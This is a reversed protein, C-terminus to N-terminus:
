RSSKIRSQTDSKTAFFEIYHRINDYICWYKLTTLMMLISTWNFRIVNPDSTKDQVTSDDQEIGMVPDQNNSYNPDYGGISNIITRFLLAWFNTIM